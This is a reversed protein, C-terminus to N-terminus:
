GKLYHTKVEIKFLFPSKQFFHFFFLFFISVFELANSQLSQSSKLEKELELQEYKLNEEDERM